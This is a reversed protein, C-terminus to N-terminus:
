HCDTEWLGIDGQERSLSLSHTLLRSLSLFFPPPPSPLLFPPLCLSLGDTDTVTLGGCALTARSGTHM